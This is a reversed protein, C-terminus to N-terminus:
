LQWSAQSAGVQLSSIALFIIILSNIYILTGSNRILRYISTGTSHILTAIASLILCLISNDMRTHNTIQLSKLIIQHGSVCIHLTIYGYIHKFAYSDM